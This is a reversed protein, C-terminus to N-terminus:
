FDATHSIANLTVMFIQIFTKDYYTFSSNSGHFDVANISIELSVKKPPSGLMDCPVKEEM